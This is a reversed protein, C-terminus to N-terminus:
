LKYFFTLNKMIDIVYRDGDVVSLKQLYPAVKGGEIDKCDLYINEIAQCFLDFKPIIFHNRFATSIIFINPYIIERFVDRSLLLTEISGVFDDHMHGRHAIEEEKLVIKLSAFLEKLRYDTRKLGSNELM